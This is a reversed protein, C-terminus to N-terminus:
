RRDARKGQIGGPVATQGFRAGTIHEASHDTTQQPLLHGPEIGGTDRSVQVAAGTFNGTFSQSQSTDQCM